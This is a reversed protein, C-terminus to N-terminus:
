LGRHWRDGFLGIFKIEREGMKTFTVGQLVLGLISIYKFIIEAFKWGNQESAM